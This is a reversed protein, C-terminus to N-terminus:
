EAAGAGVLFQVLADDARGFAKAAHLPTVPKAGGGDERVEQNVSAGKKVLKRVRRLNGEACAKLLPTGLDLQEAPLGTSMAALELEDRADDGTSEHVFLKDGTALELDAASDSPDILDGDFVFFLPNDADYWRSFPEILARLPAAAELELDFPAAGAKDNPSSAFRVMQEDRMEVKIFVRHPHGHSAM